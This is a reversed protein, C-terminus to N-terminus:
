YMTTEGTADASPSNRPTAHSTAETQSGDYPGRRGERDRNMGVALTLSNTRQLRIYGERAREAVRKRKQRKSRVRETRFPSVAVFSRGVNACILADAFFTSM